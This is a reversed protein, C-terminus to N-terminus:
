YGPLVGLQVPELIYLMDQNKGNCRQGVFGMSLSQEIAVCSVNVVLCQVKTSCTRHMSTIIQPVINNTCTGM